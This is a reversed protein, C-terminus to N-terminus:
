LAVLQRRLEEDSLEGRDAQDKLDQAKVVATNWEDTTIKGRQKRAKLRNYTKAYEKQPLLQPSANRRKKKQTRGGQPLNAVDRRPGPQNNCYSLEARVGARYLAGWRDGHRVQIGQM